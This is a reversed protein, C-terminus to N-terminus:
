ELGTEILNRAGKALRDADRATLVLKCGRADLRRALASGIAGTAGTIWIVHSM